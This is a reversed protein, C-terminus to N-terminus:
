HEQSLDPVSAEQTLSDDETDPWDNMRTRKSFRIVNPKLPIEESTAGEYDMFM